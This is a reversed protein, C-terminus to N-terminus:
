RRGGRVENNEVADAHLADFTIGALAAVSGGTRPTGFLENEAAALREAHFQEFYAQMLACPDGAMAGSLVDTLHDVAVQALPTPPDPSPRQRDELRTVRLEYDIETAHLAHNERSRKTIQIVTPRSLDYERFLKRACDEHARDDLYALEKAVADADRMQYAHGHDIANRYHLREGGHPVSKKAM